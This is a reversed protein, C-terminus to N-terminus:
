AADKRHTHTHNGPNGGCKACTCVAPPRTPTPATM